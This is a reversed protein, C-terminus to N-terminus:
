VVPCFDGILGISAWQCCNGNMLLDLQIQEHIKRKILTNRPCYGSAAPQQSGGSSMHSLSFGLLEQTQCEWIHSFISSQQWGWCGMGPPVRKFYCIVSSFKDQRAALEAAPSPPQLLPAGLFASSVQGHSLCSQTSFGPILCKLPQRVCRTHTLISASALFVYMPELHPQNVWEHSFRQPVHPCGSSQLIGPWAEPSSPECRM